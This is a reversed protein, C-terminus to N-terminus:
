IIDFWCLRREIAQHTAHDISTYFKLIFEYALHLEGSCNILNKDQLFDQLKVSSDQTKAMAFRTYFKMQAETAAVIRGHFESLAAPAQLTKLRALFDRQKELYLALVTEYQSPRRKIQLFADINMRNSVGEAMLGTWQQFYILEEQKDIVSQKVPIAPFWKSDRIPWYNESIRMNEVRDRIKYYRGQFYAPGYYLICFALAAFAFANLMKIAQKKKGAISIQESIFNRLSTCVERSLWLGHREPCATVFLELYPLTQRILQKNCKPCSPPVPEVRNEMMSIDSFVRGLEKKQGSHLVADIEEYRNKELWM